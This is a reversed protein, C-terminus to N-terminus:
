RPVESLLDDVLSMTFEDTLCRADTAPVACEVSVVYAVEGQLIFVHVAGENRTLRVPELEVDPILSEHEFAVANAQMFVNVGAASMAAAWWGEGETIIATDRLWQEGVLRQEPATLTGAKIARETEIPIQQASAPLASLVIALILLHRM